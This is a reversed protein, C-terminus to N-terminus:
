KLYYTITGGTEDVGNKLVTRSVNIKQGDVTYTIGGIFETYINVTILNEFLVCNESAFDVTTKDAPRYVNLTTLTYGTLNDKNTGFIGIIDAYNDYPLTLEKLNKCGALAYNEIKTITKPFTIKELNSLNAFAHSFIQRYGSPVYIYKIKSRYEEGLADFVRDLVGKVDSENPYGGRSPLRIRGDNDDIYKKVDATKKDNIGKISWGGLYTSSYTFYSSPMEKVDGCGERTCVFTEADYDHRPEYWSDIEEGCLTCSVTAQVTCNEANREGYVAAGKKHNYPVVPITETTRRNCYLCKKADVGTSSCTAEVFFEADKKMSHTQTKYFVDKHCRACERYAYYCYNEDSNDRYDYKIDTGEPFSHYLRETVETQTNGCVSCVRKVYGPEECTAEKRETDKYDHSITGLKERKEYDCFKCKKVREGNDTCTPEVKIEWGGLEHSKQSIVREEKVGCVSCTKSEKGKKVCTAEEEIEAEGFTHQKKPLVFGRKEYGCVSCVKKGEGEETCTPAKIETIEGFEHSNGCGKNGFLDCASLAASLTAAFAIIICILFIKRKM